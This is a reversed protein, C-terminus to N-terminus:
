EEEETPILGTGHCEDCECSVHEEFSRQWKTGTDVSFCNLEVIRGSGGCIDCTKQFADSCVKSDDQTRM